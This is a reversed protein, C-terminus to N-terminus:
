WANEGMWVSIVRRMTCWESVVGSRAAVSIAQARGSSQASTDVYVRERRTGAASKVTSPRRVATKTWSQRVRGGSSQSATTPPSSGGGGSTSAGKHVTVVASPPRAGVSNASATRM